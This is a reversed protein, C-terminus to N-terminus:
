QLVFDAGNLLQKGKEQPFWLGQCSGNKKRDISKHIRTIQIFPIMRYTVKQIQGRESLM